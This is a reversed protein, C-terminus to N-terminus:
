AAGKLSHMFALKARVEPSIVFPYLDPLGMSRNLCNVAFVLPLWAKLIVEMDPERYPDVASGESSGTAKEAPRVSMAFANATDLTDVVHLYHAWTEAFDEWPHSSAYATIVHGAWDPRSGQAYHRELAARYDQRDDGFLARCEDLRGADRVLRNWIWHGAEHRFHGLLTRYSEHMEHRLEERVVDDAERAAITIVGNEHGTMVRGGGPREDLFDFVLGGQPDDIRNPLAMGLRLLSYILRHKAVELKRWRERTDPASLDPIMRNHRCAACLADPSGAPLLWNCVDESANACFVYPGGTVGVAEFVDGAPELAVVTLSAPDFGVRHGCHGCVRNEFFVMSGCSQCAFLKM